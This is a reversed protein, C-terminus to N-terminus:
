KKMAPVFRECFREVASNVTKKDDGTNIVIGEVTNTSLHELGHTLAKLCQPGSRNDMVTTFGALATDNLRGERHEYIRILHEDFVKKIPYAVNSFWTPTGFIIGSYGIFEDPGHVDEAEKLVVRYGSEALRDFINEAVARVNVDKPTAQTLEDVDKVSLPPAKKWPPSGGHFVILVSKRGSMGSAIEQGMCLSTICSLVVVCAIGKKIYLLNIRM